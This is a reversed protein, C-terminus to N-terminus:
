DDEESLSVDEIQGLRGLPPPEGNIGHLWEYGANTVGTTDLPDFFEDGEEVRVKIIVYPM